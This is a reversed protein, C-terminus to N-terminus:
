SLLLIIPLCNGSQKWKPMSWSHGRLMDFYVTKSKHWNVYVNEESLILNQDICSFSDNLVFRDLRKSNPIQTDSSLIDTISNQQASSSFIIVIQGATYNIPDALM